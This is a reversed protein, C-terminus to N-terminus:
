LKLHSVIATEQVAPLEPALAHEEPPSRLVLKGKSDPLKINSQKGVRTCVHVLCGCNGKKLSDIEPNLNPM